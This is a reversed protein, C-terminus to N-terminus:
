ERGPPKLDNGVQKIGYAREHDRLHKRSSIHIGDITTFPQIDPMVYTGPLPKAESKPVLKGDRLVYTERAM